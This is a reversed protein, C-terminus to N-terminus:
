AENAKKIKVVKKEFRMPCKNPSYHPKRSQDKLGTVGELQYRKIWKRVVSPNTRYERAAAKKGNKLAFKVLEYRFQYRNEQNMKFIVRCYKIPIVEKNLNLLYGNKM